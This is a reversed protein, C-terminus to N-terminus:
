PHERRPYACTARGCVHSPKRNVVFRGSVVQGFVVCRGGIVERIRGSAWEFWARLGVCRGLLALRVGAKGGRQAGQNESLNM